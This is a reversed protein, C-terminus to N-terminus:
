MDDCSIKSSHRLHLSIKHLTIKSGFSIMNLTKNPKNNQNSMDSFLLMTNRPINNYFRKKESLHSHVTPSIELGASM